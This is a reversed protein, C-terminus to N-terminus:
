NSYIARTGKTTAKVAHNTLKSIYKAVPTYDAESGIKKANSFGFCNWGEMSLSDALVVAHYHERGNQSGFDINAVYRDSLSKLFRTVYRRRTVDSTRALVEDTFTLTLFYCTGECLMDAIRDKLRKVRAYYALNIREAERWVRFAEDDYVFSSVTENIAEEYEEDIYVDTHTRLYGLRSFERQLRVVESHESLVMAKYAYDIKAM